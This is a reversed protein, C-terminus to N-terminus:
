NKIKARRIRSRPTERTAWYLGAIVGTIFVAYFIGTWLIEDPYMDVGGAGFSRM